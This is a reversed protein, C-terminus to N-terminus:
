SHARVSFNERSVRLTSLGTRKNVNCQGENVQDVQYVKAEYIHIVKTRSLRGSCIVQTTKLILQTQAMDYDSLRERM